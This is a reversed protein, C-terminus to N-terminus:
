PVDFGARAGDAAPWWWQVGAVGNQLPEVPRSVHRPGGAHAAAGDGYGVGTRARRTQSDYTKGMDELSARAMGRPYRASASAVMSPRVPRTGPYPAIGDVRRKSLLVTIREHVAQDGVVTHLQSRTCAADNVHGLVELVGADTTAPHPSTPLIVVRTVLDSATRSSRAQVLVKAEQVSLVSGACHADRAAPAVLSRGCELLM